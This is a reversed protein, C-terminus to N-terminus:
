QSGGGDANANTSNTTTEATSKTTNSMATAPNSTGLNPRLGLGSRINTNPRLSTTIKDAAMENSGLAIKKLFSAAATTHSRHLEQMRHNDSNNQLTKEGFSRDSIAQSSASSHFNNRNSGSDNGLSSIQSSSGSGHGLGRRGEQSKRPGMSKQRESELHDKKIEDLKKPNNDKGKSQWQEKERLECVDLLKFRIRISLPLDKNKRIKHLQDFIPDLTSIPEPAQNQANSAVVSALSKNNNHYANTNKSTNKQSKQKEKAMAQSSRDLKEGITKLLDCLCELSEESSPDALLRQICDFMIADNLMEIKYLEGIFKILGLGRMRCRYMDEYLEEDLHKKKEPDHEQEIKKKREELNIGSYIDAQFQNQCRKLLTNGFNATGATIKKLHSCMQGYLVCYGPEALAKAFVIDIVEGLKAETDIHMDTVALALNDFNQPTLKNLISRFKKKLAEVEVVDDPVEEEKVEKGPRWPNSVTKLEVENTLSSSPVIIKRQREQGASSRGTYNNPNQRRAPDNQRNTAQYKSQQQYNPAFMDTKDLNYTPMANDTSVETNIDLKCIKECVELMFDRSYKKKGKRNLIPHYQGPEYQLKKEGNVDDDKKTSDEDCDKVDKNDLKKDGESQLVIGAVPEPETVENNAETKPIEKSDTNIATTPAPAPTPQPTPQPGSASTPASAPALTPKPSTPAPTAKPAPASPPVSARVPASAPASAKAPIPSEITVVEKAKPPSTTVGSTVTPTKTVTKAVQERRDSSADESVKRLLIDGVTLPPSSTDTRDTSSSNTVINNTTTPNVPVASNETKTSTTTTSPTSTTLTATTITATATTRPQHTPAPKTTTTTTTTTTTAKTTNTAAESSSKEPVGSDTLDVPKGTKPDIIPLKKKERPRVTPASKLPQPLGQSTSTSIPVQAYAAAQQWAPPYQAVFQAGYPYHQPGVNAPYQPFQGRPFPPHSPYAAHGLQMQHPYNHPPQLAAYGAPPNQQAHQPPHTLQPQQHLSQPQTLQQQIHHPQQQQDNLPQQPQRQQQTHHHQPHQPHHHHSPQQQPQSTPQTRPDASDM